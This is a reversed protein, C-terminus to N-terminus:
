SAKRRARGNLTPLKADKARNKNLIHYVTSRAIGLAEAAKLINGDVRRLAEEVYARDIEVLAKPLNLQRQGRLKTRAFSVLGRPRASQIHVDKGRLKRQVRWVTSRSVGLLSAAEIGNGGCRKLAEDVYAQEVHVRAEVLNLNKQNKLRTKAFANM